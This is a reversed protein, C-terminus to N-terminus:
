SLLLHCNKNNISMPFLVVSDVEKSTESSLTLCNHLVVCSTLM